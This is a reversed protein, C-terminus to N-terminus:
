RLHPPHDRLNAEVDEVKGKTIQQQAALWALFLTQAVNLGTIVVDPWGATM